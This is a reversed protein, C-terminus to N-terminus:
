GAADERIMAAAKEAIMIVPANTNGGILTPMVSADVVRLGALGRLRLRPDLPAEADGGMRCTGVPHYITDARKPIEARLGEDPVGATYIEEGRWADLAPAELIRRLRVAGRHLAELDAPHSLYAPDIEPAARPDPSTVRVEGRSRPRLVCVHASFGKRFHRRRSHDDVIGVVFHLQLDPRPLGPESNLFAGVEAYSTAGLGEGTRMWRAAGVLLDAIGRASLGLLEARPSAYMLIFDVHDQLNRGVEPASLVPAIGAARLREPDGIGSLQLLKPTGFAGAAVIVERRARMARRRRGRRVVAGVCRGDEILLREAEAGTVIELNARGRAPDLYAFAASCRSGHRPGGRFQTLQFRSAGEGTLANLDEAPPAQCQACAELIAANIPNDSLSDGVHLPGETGHLAPDVGPRHNREARRFWPLVSEWDWGECGAEAWGDYDSPHGRVYLMANIASSGGLGRGRPQYGRRGGLGPQPVTQYAWNNIKPFDPILAIAGMPMRVLLHDARGGAEILRVRVSPDESLRAALVSGASGGGLVLYDPDGAM